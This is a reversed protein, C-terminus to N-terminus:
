RMGGITQQALDNGKYRWVDFGPPAGFVSLMLDKPYPDKEGEFTLRPRVGLVLAKGYVHAAFWESGISAPTLMLIRGGAKAFCPAALSAKEAWSAINAFPPNLWCVTSAWQNWDVVISLSDQEPTVFNPAKANDARAALDVAIKGFRREVARIFEWPTEYDQKSKGPKQKPESM